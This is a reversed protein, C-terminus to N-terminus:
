QEVQTPEAHDNLQKLGSVVTLSRRSRFIEIGYRIWKKGIKIRWLSGTNGKKHETGFLPVVLVM